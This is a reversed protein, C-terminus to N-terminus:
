QPYNEKDFRMEDANPYAKTIYDMLKGWGGPGSPFEKYPKVGSGAEFARFETERHTFNMGSNYNGTTPDKTNM